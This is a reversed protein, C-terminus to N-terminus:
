RNQLLMAHLFQLHSDPLIGQFYAIRGQRIEDGHGFDRPCLPAPSIIESHMGLAALRRTGLVMRHMAGILNAFHLTPLGTILGALSPYCRLASGM